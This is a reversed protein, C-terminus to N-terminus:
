NAEGEQLTVIFRVGSCWFINLKKLFLIRTSKTYFLQRELSSMGFVVIKMLTSGHSYLLRHQHANSSRGLLYQISLFVHSDKVKTGITIIVM